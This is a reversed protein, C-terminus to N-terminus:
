GYFIGVEIELQTTIVSATHIQEILTGLLRCAGLDIIM